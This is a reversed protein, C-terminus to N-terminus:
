KAPSVPTTLSALRWNGAVKVLGLTTDLPNQNAAGTHVRALASQGTVKISLVTLTPKVVRRLSSRALATTCPLNISAMQQLLNPAFLSCIKAYDKAAVANGYAVVTAKVQASEDAGGGCGALALATLAVSLPVTTRRV